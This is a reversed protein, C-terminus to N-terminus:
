IKKLKESLEASSIKQQCNAGLVFVHRLLEWEKPDLCDEVSIRVSTRKSQTNDQFMVDLIKMPIVLKNNLELIVNRVIARIEDNVPSDMSSFPLTTM